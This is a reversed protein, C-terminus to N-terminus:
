GCKVGATICITRNTLGCQAGTSKGLGGSVGGLDADTLEIMGSPHAPLEAQEAASLKQRYSQDKWARIIHNINMESEETWYPSLKKALRPMERVGAALDGHIQCLDVALDINWRHGLLSRHTVSGLRLMVFPM